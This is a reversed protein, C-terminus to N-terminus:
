KEIQLIAARNAGLHLKKSAQVKQRTLVRTATQFPGDTLDSMTSLDFSRAKDSNNIIVLVSHHASNRAYAYVNHKPPWQKLNGSQVAKSTQRWQLLKRTFNFAKNERATRGKKTFADRKDSKWGGPFDRRVVGDKGHTKMLIETGYYIEPIGRTTLLFTMALKYKALNEDITYFFRDMDHNDLFILNDDPRDYLFDKKLVNYLAQVSGGPKFAQHTAFTLPFDTVSPLRTNFAHSQTTDKGAWYSAEAASKYWAEGVIYFGPYERHIREVWRKMFTQNNFPYTDMRIGDIGAYEIWWITNQILYNALYPNSENLDAMSRVFWGNQLSDREAKPAHPDSVSNMAFNNKMYPHIWNKAPPNKVWWAHSGSHNVVMDMILKMGRKHLDQALKKYLNNSGFRPDIHYYDTIAYGHYSYTPMANTLLPNIWLTTVGLNQLYNLHNIIGQIDGGHRGHPSEMNLSDKLGAVSDNAYNGNAFRDPTILYIADKPSIQDPHHDGKRSKLTYDYTFSSKGPRNIHIPLQGPSADSSIYLDLFLFDKNDTRHVKQLRVGPYNINVKAKGIDPAQLMLQLHPDKMGAWWNLPAVRKVPSSQASAYFPLAIMLLLFYALFPVKQKM